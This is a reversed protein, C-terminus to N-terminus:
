ASGSLSSLSGASVGIKALADAWKHDHDEGFLLSEDPPCTLWVNERLEQELQGAGLRRLGAGARARPADASAMAQLVDRTATLSVGTPGVITGQESEYDDTHLV